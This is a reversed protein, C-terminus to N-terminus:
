VATELVLESDGTAEEGKFRIERNEARSIVVRQALTSTTVNGEGLM